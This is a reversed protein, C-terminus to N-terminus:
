DDEWIWLTWDDEGIRELYVGALEPQVTISEVEVTPTEPAVVEVSSSAGATVDVLVAPASVVEVTV